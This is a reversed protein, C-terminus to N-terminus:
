LNHIVQFFSLERNNCFPIPFKVATLEVSETVFQRECNHFM